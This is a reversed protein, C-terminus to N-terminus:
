SRRCETWAYTCSGVLLWQLLWFLPGLTHISGTLYFSLGLAPATFAMMGLIILIAYIWFLMFHKFLCKM